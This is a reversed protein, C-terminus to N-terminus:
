DRDEYDTQESPPLGAWQMSVEIAGGKKAQANMQALYGSVDLLMATRLYDNQELPGEGNVGTQFVASADGTKKQTYLQDRIAYLGAALWREIETLDVSSLVSDSDNSSVKNVLSNAAVIFPTTSITPTTELIDRVQQDTVRMGM